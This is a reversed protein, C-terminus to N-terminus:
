VSRGITFSSMFDSPGDPGGLPRGWRDLVPRAATGLVRLTFVQPETLAAQFVEPDAPVFAM